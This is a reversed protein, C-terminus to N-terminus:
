RETHTKAAFYTDFEMSMSPLLQAFLKEVEYTKQESKIIRFIGYRYNLVYLHLIIVGM